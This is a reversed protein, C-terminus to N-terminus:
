AMHESKQGYLFKIVIQNRLPVYDAWAVFIFIYNVECMIM